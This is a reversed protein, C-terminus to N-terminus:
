SSELRQYSVIVGPKYKKANPAYDREGEEDASLGAGTTDSGTMEEHDSSPACKRKGHPPELESM